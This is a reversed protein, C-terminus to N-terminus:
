HLLMCRDNFTMLQNKLHLWRGQRGFGFTAVKELIPGVLEGLGPVQAEKGQFSAHHGIEFGLFVCALM